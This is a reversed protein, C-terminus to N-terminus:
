PYAGRPLDTLSIDDTESYVFIRKYVVFICIVALILMFIIFTLKLNGLSSIMDEMEPNEARQASAESQQELITLLKSTLNREDHQGQDAEIVTLLKQLFMDTNESNPNNRQESLFNNLINKESNSIERTINKLFDKQVKILEKVDDRSSQKYSGFFKYFSSRKFDNDFFNKLQHTSKSINSPEQYEEVCSIGLINTKTYSSGTSISINKAKAQMFIQSLDFCTFSNSDISFHSLKSCFEFLTKTDLDVIGNASVDIETLNEMSFFVAAEIDPLNINSLNLFTLHGLGHFVGVNIEAFNNFSVDLHTLNKLNVFLAFPLNELKNKSIDLVELNELLQFPRNEIMRILNGSLNLKKLNIPFLSGNLVKLHNHSISLFDINFNSTCNEVTSIKNHDFILTKLSHFHHCWNSDITELSNRSLNM